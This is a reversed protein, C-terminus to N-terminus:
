DLVNLYIRPMFNCVYYSGFLETVNVVLHNIVFPGSVVLVVYEAPRSKRYICVLCHLAYESLM